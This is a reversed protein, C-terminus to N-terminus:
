LKYKRQSNLLGGHRTGQSETCTVKKPMYLMANVVLSSPSSTFPTPHMTRSPFFFHGYAM